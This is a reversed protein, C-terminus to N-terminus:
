DVLIFYINKFNENIDHSLEVLKCNVIIKLDLLLMQENIQQM